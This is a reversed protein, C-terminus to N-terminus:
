HKGCKPCKTHGLTVGVYKRGLDKCYDCNVTKSHITLQDLLKNFEYDQEQETSESSSWGKYLARLQQKIQKETM